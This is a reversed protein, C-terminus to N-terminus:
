MSICSTIKEVVKDISLDSTDILVADETQKLPAIERESDIKDRTAIDAAVSELTANSFTEGNQNLRRQARVLPSATIFFKYKANPFVVSGIDRGEMVVLQQGGLYRQLETMKKRVLANTAVIAVHEAVEPSRIEFDLIRGNVSLVFTGHDNKQYCLEFDSLLSEVVLNTLGNMKVDNQLFYWTVARYMNGTNIYPIQLEKAVLNAVTSKGSAAPGDIAIVSVKENM